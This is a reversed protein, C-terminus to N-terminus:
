RYKGTASSLKVSVGNIGVEELISTVEDVTWINKPGIIVEEISHFQEYSTKLRHFNAKGYNTERQEIQYKEDRNHKLSVVARTENEESFFIDKYSISLYMLTRSLMEWKIISQSNVYSQIIARAHDRLLEEDYNVKIFDVSSNIPEFGNEIYRNFVNNQKIKEENFGISVGTGNEAYESWQSKTDGNNSFCGILIQFTENLNDDSMENVIDHDDLNFEKLVERIIEYGSKYEGKDNMKTIDSLWIEKTNRISEFVFANCYHYIMCQEM